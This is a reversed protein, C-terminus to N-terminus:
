RPSHAPRRGSSIASHEGRLSDDGSYGRRARACRYYLHETYRIGSSNSFDLRNLLFRVPSPNQTKLLFQEYPLVKADWDRQLDDQKELAAKKALQESTQPPKTSSAPIQTSNLRIGYAASPLFTTSTPRSVTRTVRIVSRRLTNLSM